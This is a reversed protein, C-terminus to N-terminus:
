RDAFLRGPGPRVPRPHPIAALIKHDSLGQALWIHRNPVFLGTYLNKIKKCIKPTVYPASGEEPM